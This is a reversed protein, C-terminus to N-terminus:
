VHLLSQECLQCTVMMLVTLPGESDLMEAQYSCDIMTFSVRLRTNCIRRRICNRISMLAMLGDGALLLVALWTVQANVVAWVTQSLSGVFQSCAAIYRQAFSVVHRCFASCAIRQHRCRVQQSQYYSSHLHQLTEIRWLLVVQIVATFM